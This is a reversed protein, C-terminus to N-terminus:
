PPFSHPPHPPDPHVLATLQTSVFPGNKRRYRKEREYKRIDAPILQTLARTDQDLDDPHTIATFSTGILEGPAYGLLECLRGNVRLWRGELSTHGIGIPAEDFTTAFSRESERLAGFHM